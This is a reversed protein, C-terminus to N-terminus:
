GEPFLTKALQKAHRLISINKPTVLRKKRSIKKTKGSSIQRLTEIVNTHELPLLIKQTAITADILTKPNKKLKQLTVTSDVPPLQLYETRILDGTDFEETVWHTTAETWLKKEDTLWCYAIRTCMVRAGYMGVGGFDPYGPDLPGPHQNIIKDQYRDIVNKPTLPLWGNQSILDINWTDFVKLLKKGFTTQSVYKKPNIVIVPVKLKKAKEIGKATPNSSIVGTIEVGKLRSSRVAKIVAEATTGGGSILLAIRM